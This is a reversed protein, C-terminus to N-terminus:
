GGITYSNNIILSHNSIKIHLAKVPPGGGMTEYAALTGLTYGVGTCASIKLMGESLKSVEGLIGKEPNKALKEAKEAAEGAEKVIEDAGEAGQKITSSAEQEADKPTLQQGKENEFSQLKKAFEKPRPLKRALEERLKGIEKELLERVRRFASYKEKFGENFYKLEEETLEGKQAKEILSRLASLRAEEAISRTDSLAGIIRAKDAEPITIRYGERQLKTITEELLQSPEKKLILEPDRRLEERITELVLGGNDCEASCVQAPKPIRDIIELRAESPLKLLQQKGTESLYKEPQQTIALFEQYTKRASAGIRQLAEETLVRERLAAYYHEGYKIPFQEPSSKLIDEVLTNWNRACYNPSINCVKALYPLREGGIALIRAEDMVALRPAGPFLKRFAADIVREYQYRSIFPSIRSIRGQSLYYQVAARGALSTDVASQLIGHLTAGFLITGAGLGLASGLSTWPVLLGAYSLSGTEEINKKLRGELTHKALYPPAWCVAGVEALSTLGGLLTKTALECAFLGISCSLAFSNLTKAGLIERTIRKDIYSGICKGTPLLPEGNQNEACITYSTPKGNAALTLLTAEKEEGEWIEGANERKSKRPTGRKTANGSRRHRNRHFAQVRDQSSIRTNGQGRDM